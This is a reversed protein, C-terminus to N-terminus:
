GGAGRRAFEKAALQVQRLDDSSWASPSRKEGLAENVLDALAQWARPAELVVTPLVQALRLRVPWPNRDRWAARAQELLLPALDSPLPGAASAAALAEVALANLGPQKIEDAKACLARALELTAMAALAEALATQLRLSQGSHLMTLLPAGAQEAAAPGVRELAHVLQLVQEERGASRMLELLDPVLAPYRHEALLQLGLQFEAPAAAHLLTRVLSEAGPLRGLFFRAREAIDEVPDGCAKQLAPQLEPEEREGLVEVVAARQGADVGDLLLDLVERASAPVLRAMARALGDRGTQERFAPVMLELARARDTLGKLAMVALGEATTEVAFGLRRNRLHLAEAAQALVNGLQSPRGEPTAALVERYFDALLESPDGAAAEPAQLLGLAEAAAERAAGPTLPRFRALVEKFGRDALAEGHAELFIDRLAEAAEPTFVHALLVLAHRFVLLDPHQAVTQLAQISGGDVLQLLRQAADNAESANGSGQLLRGLYHQFAEQPDTQSLVEAVTEQFEAGQRLINLERLLELAAPTRMRGLARVGTVFIGHDSEYRLIRALTPLWDPWPYYFSAELALRRLERPARSGPLRTDLEHVAAPGVQLIALFFALQQDRQSGDLHDLLQRFHDLSHDAM